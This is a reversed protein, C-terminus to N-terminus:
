MQKLYTNLIFHPYFHHFILLKQVFSHLLHVQLTTISAEGDTFKKEQENMLSAKTELVFRTMM